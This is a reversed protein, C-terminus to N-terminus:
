ASAATERAAGEGVAWSATPALPYVAWFCPSSPAGATFPGLVFDASRVVRAPAAHAAGGCSRSPPVGSSRAVAVKDPLGTTTSTNAPARSCVTTTSSVLQVRKFTCINPQGARTVSRRPMYAAPGPFLRPVRTLSQVVSAVSTISRVTAIARSRVTSGARAIERAITYPSNAASTASGAATINVTPAKRPRTKSSCPYVQAAHIVSPPIKTSAPANEQVLRFGQDFSRGRVSVVAWSRAP